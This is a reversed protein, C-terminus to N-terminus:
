ASCECCCGSCQPKTHKEQHKVLIESLNDYEETARHTLAGAVGGLEEYDQIQLARDSSNPDEQWRQAVKIYLESLTFSVLPLSGPMQAVEDILKGVLKPLELYLAQKLTPREIAQPLEDLNMSRIPFRADKWYALLPSSLFRPEFGSRLNLVIHLPQSCGVIAKKLVEL